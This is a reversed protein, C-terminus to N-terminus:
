LLEKELKENLKRDIEQRVNMENVDNVVFELNETFSNRKVRGTMVFEKGLVDLDDFFETLNGKQLFAKVVEDASRSIVKEALERFFVARINGSGDDIFGSLVMQYKPEKIEGHEKCSWVDGKEVRGDCEPCVEFFPKKPFIQVLAARTTVLDGERFDIIRKIQQRESFDIEKVEVEKDSKEFVGKKGLRMELNGRNDEIVFGGTIKISDNEKFGEQGYKDIDQDWLSIRISGTDDAIILNKVRGEKGNKTFTRTEFDRMIKGNVDVSRMGSVINKIKLDRATEKLLNVGLEKAVIYAAGEPSVLGSLEDQKEEIMKKVDAESSDSNGVIEKIIEDLSLM